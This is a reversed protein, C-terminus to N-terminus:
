SEAWFLYAISHIFPTRLMRQLESDGAGRIWDLERDSTQRYRAGLEQVSRPVKSASNLDFAQGLFLALWFRNALIIHHLLGRLEADASAQENAIVAKLLTANAYNKHQVLDRVMGVPM